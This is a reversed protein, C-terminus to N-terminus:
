SLKDDDLSNLVDAWGSVCKEVGAKFLAPDKVKHGVLADSQLFLNAALPVAAKLKDSGSLSLAQGMVEAQAVIGSLRTATDAVRDVIKDVNDPTAAKVFPAFANIGTTLQLAIQGLRTLFKIPM